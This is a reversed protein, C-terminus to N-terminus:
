AAVAETAAKFQWRAGTPGPQRKLLWHVTVHAYKGTAPNLLKVLAGRQLPLSEVNEVVYDVERGGGHVFTWTQGEEIRQDVYDTRNM